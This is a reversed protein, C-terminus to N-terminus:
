ISASELPLPSAPMSVRWGAVRDVADSLATVSGWGGSKTVVPMGARAGDGMIALTMGESLWGLDSFRTVGLVDRLALDATAGGAVVMSGLALSTDVLVNQLLARLTGRVNALTDRQLTPYPGTNRAVFPESPTWIVCNLGHALADRMRRCLEGTAAPHANDPDIRIGACDPRALLHAVQRQTASQLSGAIVVVPQSFRRRPVAARALAAALGVSGSLVRCGAQQAALVILDLDEDTAADAILVDCATAAMLAAAGGSHLTALDLLSTTLGTERSVCDALDRNLGGPVAAGTDDVELQVGSSTIRGRNPCAPAYVVPRAGRACAVARLEAGIHGQLISDNHKLISGVGLALLHQVVGSVREEAQGPNLPRTAADFGYVEVDLVESATPLRSIGTGVRLGLRAFEGAIAQLGTLDDSVITWIPLTM